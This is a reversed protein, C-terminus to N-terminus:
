GMMKKEQAAVWSRDWKGEAIAKLSAEEKKQQAEALAIIAPADAPAIALLGDEDGVIIDGPSVMMGGVTM